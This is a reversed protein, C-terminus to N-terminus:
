NLLKKYQNIKKIHEVSLMEYMEKDEIIFEDLDKMSIKNSIMFGGSHFKELIKNYYGPMDFDFSNRELLNIFENVDSLKVEKELSEKIANPLEELSTLRHVSPLSAYITDTFIIAPKKYLMAELGGSGAITIVVLCNELIENPSISPHLLEVNPLMMIEKYEKIERWHRYRMLPHEKVLLKCNVPLAKAINTIVEIQNSYFPADIDVNREPQIQLPFFIFKKNLDINKGFNKDIFNKRMRGKISYSFYHSIAKWRTVGYHDYSEGFKKDVTKTLWRVGPLIKKYQPYNMGGSHTTVKQQSKSRKKFYERLEDFSNIKIKDDIKEDLELDIKDSQAAISVRNALRSTFLMLIKVNRVRCMETLLYNRHFDTTKIILFDPNIEDIVKEFFRCEQEFISLIEKRNFKYFPNYKYFNRESFAIEWLNIKYKKEIQKLYEINPEKTKGINDWFYWEKKFNVLNQQMFSKKLHHNLDYIVYFDSDIKEQLIKAVGFQILSVDVWFLIRDKMNKEHTNNKM